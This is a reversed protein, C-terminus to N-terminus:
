LCRPRTCYPQPGRKPCGHTAYESALATPWPIVSIFLLFVLTRELFRRNIARVASMM